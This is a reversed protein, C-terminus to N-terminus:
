VAKVYFACIQAQANPASTFTITQNLITYDIGQRQMVGNIFIVVTAVAIPLSSLTCVNGGVLLLSEQVYQTSPISYNNVTTTTTPPECCNQSM